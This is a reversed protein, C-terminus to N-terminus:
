AEAALDISPFRPVGGSSSCRAIPGGSSFLIFVCFKRNGVRRQDRFLFFLHQVM